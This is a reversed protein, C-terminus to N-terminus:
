ENPWRARPRQRMDAIADTLSVAVFNAACLQHFMTTLHRCVEAAEKRGAYQSVLRSCKAQAQALHSIMLEFDDM